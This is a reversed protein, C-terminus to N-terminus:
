KPLERKIKYLHHNTIFLIKESQDSNHIIIFSKKEIFTANGNMLEKKSFVLCASDFQCFGFSLLV